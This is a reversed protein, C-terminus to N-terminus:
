GNVEFMKPVVVLEEGEFRLEVAEKINYLAEDITEGQTTVGSLIDIVIYGSEGTQECSQIYVPRKM